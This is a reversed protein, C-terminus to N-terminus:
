DFQLVVKAARGPDDAVEFAETFADFAFRHSIMKEPDIRGEAIGAMVEPFESPYGQSGILSIEKSMIKTADLTLPERHVAITIIRSGKNCFGAIEPLLGPAGSAEFYIDTRAHPVGWIEGHGRLEGLIEPPPNERPDFAARAGVKLALDRRLPSLDFAVIDDIGRQLLMMIIGLGIPGCGFLTVSEGPKPDARNVAHAGVSIPEVLAAHEFSVNDPLRCLSQTQKDVDRLVVYHSFGGCEGGRGMDAPSNNSNYAVREGLRFRAVDRGAEVVEGAFEHGLPMPRDPYRPGMHRFHLDTGCIGAAEVKILLDAPGVEPRPTEDVRLDGPGHLVAVKM